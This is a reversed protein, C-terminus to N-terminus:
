KIRAIDKNAREVAIDIHYKQENVTNSINSFSPHIIRRCILNYRGKEIYDCLGSAYMVSRKSYKDTIQVFVEEFQKNYFTSSQNIHKTNLFFKLFHAAGEKNDAKKPVGWCIPRVPTYATKGKPGAMPVVEIKEYGYVTSDFWGSENYMGFASASYLGSLGYNFLEVGGDNLLLDRKMVGIYQWAKALLSAETINDTANSFETNNYEVFDENATHMILDNFHINMGGTNNNKLKRAIDEQAEWNWKGQKYLQYPMTTIGCKKLVEKNYYTVYNFEECTWNRAIAVGFVNGNVKYANLFETNWINSSLDFTKKNLPQLCKTVVSPFNSMGFPVIDPPNGSIIMSILKTEFETETTYVTTIQVGTIKKYENILNQETPTFKRAILIKIENKNPLNELLEEKNFKVASGTKFPEKNVLPGYNPAKSNSTTTQQKSTTTTAPKSSTKQKKSTTAKSTTTKGDSSFQSTQSQVSSAEDSVTNQSSADTSSVEAIDETCASLLLIVSLFLVFIKKM